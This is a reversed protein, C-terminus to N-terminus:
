KKREKKRANKQNEWEADLLAGIMKSRARNKFRTLGSAVPYLEGAEVVEWYWKHRKDGAHHKCVILEYKQGSRAIVTTKVGVM